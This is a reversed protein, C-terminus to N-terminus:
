VIIEKANQILHSLCRPAFSESLSICHMVKLSVIRKITTSIILLTFTGCHDEPLCYLAYQGFTAVSKEINSKEDENEVEHGEWVEGRPPLPFPSTIDPVFLLTSRHYLAHFVNRNGFFFHLWPVFPPIIFFVFFLLTFLTISSIQLFTYKQDYLKKENWSIHM